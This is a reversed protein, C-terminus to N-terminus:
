EGAGDRGDPNPFGPPTTAAAYTETKRQETQANADKTQAVQQMMDRYGGAYNGLNGGAAQALSNIFGSM